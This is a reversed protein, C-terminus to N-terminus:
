LSVDFLHFHYNVLEKFFLIYSWKSKKKKIHTHIVMERRRRMMERARARETHTHADIYGLSPAVFQM